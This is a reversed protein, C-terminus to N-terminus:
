PVFQKSPSGLTAGWDGPFLAHMALRLGEGQQVPALAPEQEPDDGLAHVAEECHVSPLPVQGSQWCCLGPANPKPVACVIVSFPEGPPFRVSPNPWAEVSTLMKQM